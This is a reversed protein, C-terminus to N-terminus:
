EQEVQHGEAPSADDSRGQVSTEEGAQADGSESHAEPQQPEDDGGLIIEEPEPARPLFEEEGFIHEFLKRARDITSDFDLEFVPGSTLFLNSLKSSSAADAFIESHSEFDLSWILKEKDPVLIELGNDLGGRTEGSRTTLHLCFVGRPTVAGSYGVEQAFAFNETKTVDPGLSLFTLPEGSDTPMVTDSLLCIKRSVTENKFDGKLEDPCLKSNVVLFNCEIRQGRSVIAAVSNDKNVVVADVPRDLYYVGGFVACLRCFAQPLEGSGYMPWLFPSNGFRGLSLLFKQTAALGDICGTTKDVMAISNLVFHILNPTLKEHRLFEHFTKDRFAEFADPTAEYNVCFNIFKMLIRKEIVSIHKTTFVDSRSSPVHELIGNLVTLVRSVSKFETYRSINSKILLEVMSGRAFLLHPMLDLSFRKAQTLIAERDVSVKVTNEAKAPAPKLEETALDQDRNQEENEEKPKEPEAVNAAQTESKEPVFWKQKVNSFSPSSSSGSKGVRVLSEGDKLFSSLSEDVESQGENSDSRPQNEEVWKQIGDFTFASWQGGYFDNSDIHLVTHGNRAAAAAVISEELGTGVVIVKLSSFM